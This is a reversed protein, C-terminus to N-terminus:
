KSAEYAALAAGAAIGVLGRYTGGRKRFTSTDEDTMTVIERLAEALAECPEPKALTERALYASLRMASATDIKDIKNDLWLETVKRLAKRDASESM